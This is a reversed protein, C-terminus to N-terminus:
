WNNSPAQSAIIGRQDTYGQVTPHPSIDLFPALFYFWTDVFIILKSKLIQTMQATGDQECCRGLQINKVTQHPHCSKAHLITNGSVEKRCMVTKGGGLIDNTLTFDPFNISDKHHTFSFILGLCNNNMYSFFYPIDLCVPAWQHLLLVMALSPSFKRGMSAGTVQLYYEGDFLVFNHQLLYKTVSIVYRKLSESYNSFHDFFCNLAILAM